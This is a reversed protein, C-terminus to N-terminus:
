ELLNKVAASLFCEGVHDILMRRETSDLSSFGQVSGRCTEGGCSCEFPEVMSCETSNYNFGLRSGEHVDAIAVLTVVVPSCNDGEEEDPPREISIACNPKCMHEIYRLIGSNSLHVHSTSEFQISHQSAESQLGGSEVLIVDGKSIFTKTKLYKGFEKDQCVTLRSRPSPASPSM